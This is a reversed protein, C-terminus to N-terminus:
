ARSVCGVETTVIRLITASLRSALTLTVTKPRFCFIRPILLARTKLNFGISLGSVEAPLRGLYLISVVLSGSVSVSLNTTEEAFINWIDNTTTTPATMLTGIVTGTPSGIHIEVSEGLRCRKTSCGNKNPFNHIGNTLAVKWHKVWFGNGCAGIADGKIDDNQISIGGNMADYDEARCVFHLVEM